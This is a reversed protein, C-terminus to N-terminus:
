KSPPQRPQVIFRVRENNFFYSPPADFLRRFTRNLHQSDTFGAAHAINTLSRGSGLLPAINHIKLWLQYNRLPLGVAEAFLHSMRHYSLGVADALKDLPYSPDARLSEITRTVRADVSPSKIAPLYRGAVSIIQDFLEGAEEVTLEGRYARDMDDDLHGFANRDLALIGPAPIMRFRRFDPHLPNLVVAVLRADEAKVTRKILPKVAVAASGRGCSSVEFPARRATLLIMAYARNTHESVVWPTTFIHGREFIYVHDKMVSSMVGYSALSTKEFHRAVVHKHSGKKDVIQVM